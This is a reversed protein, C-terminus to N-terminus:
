GDAPGLDSEVGHWLRQWYRRNEALTALGARNLGYQRLTTGSRDPHPVTSVDLLGKAVLRGLTVHVAALLVDRGTADVIEEYVRRGPAEGRLRAMAVLVTQEFEGLHDGRSM